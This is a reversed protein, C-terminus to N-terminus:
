KHNWQKGRKRKKEKTHGNRIFYEVLALIYGFITLIAGCLIVVIGDWICM